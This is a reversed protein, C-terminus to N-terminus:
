TVISVPTKKYRTVDTAHMEAGHLTVKKRTEVDDGLKAGLVSSLAAGSPTHLKYREVVSKGHVVFFHGLPTAGDAISRALQCNCENADVTRANTSLGLQTAVSRHLDRLSATKPIRLIPPAESSRALAPTIIRFDLLDTESTPVSGDIVVAGGSGAIQTQSQAQAQPQTQGVTEKRQFVAFLRDTSPDTVVDSLVDECDIIAGTENDLRLTAVHTNPALSLGQRAVRKFLEEIFATVTASPEFPVLLTPRQGAWGPSVVTVTDASTLVRAPTSCINLPSM